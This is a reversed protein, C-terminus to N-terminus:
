TTSTPHVQRSWSPVGKAGLGCWGIRTYFSTLALYRLWLIVLQYVPVKNALEQAEKAKSEEREREEQEKMQSSLCMITDTGRCTHVAGVVQGGRVGLCICVCM